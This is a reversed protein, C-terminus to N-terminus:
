QLESATIWDNEDYEEVDISGTPGPNEDFTKDIFSFDITKVFLPTPVTPLAINELTILYHDADMVYTTNGIKASSFVGTESEYSKDLKFAGTREMFKTKAEEATEAEIVASMSGFYCVSIEFKKM